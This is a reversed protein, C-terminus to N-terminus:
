DSVSFLILLLLTSFYRTFFLLFEDLCGQEVMTRMFKEITKKTEETPSNAEELFKVCDGPQSHWSM